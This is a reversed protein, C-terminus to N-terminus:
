SSLLCLDARGAALLTDIEDLSTLFGGCLVPMEVENRIMDAYRTEWGRGYRPASRATTQGTVVHILDCGADKFARAATLADEDNIGGSCWDTVSFAVALLRHSSWAQRALRLIELPFRLRKEIPGGHEGSRRNTLPSLYSALLSGHSFDLELLDFDVSAALAASTMFQEGVLDMDP